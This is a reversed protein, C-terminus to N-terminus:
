RVRGCLRCRWRWRWRWRGASRWSPYRHTGREGIVAALNVAVTTTGTGGKYGVVSLIKL